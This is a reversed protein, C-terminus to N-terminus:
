KPYMFIVSESSSFQDLFNAFNCDLAIGRQCSQHPFVQLFESCFSRCLTALPAFSFGQFARELFVM